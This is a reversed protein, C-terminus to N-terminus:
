GAARCRASVRSRQGGSLRLVRRDALDTLDVEDLVREVDSRPAGLIEAFYRLNDAVSLDPYVSPSQTVYGVRHRLSPAGAPQRPGHGNRRRCDPCRCHRTDAHKQGLRESRALGVVQGKPVEVTLDPIVTIGGRASAPQRRQHRCLRNDM